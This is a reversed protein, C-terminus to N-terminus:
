KRSDFWRWALIVPGCAAAVLASFWLVSALDDNHPTASLLFKAFLLGATALMLLQGGHLNKIHARMRESSLWKWMVPPLLVMVLLAVLLITARRKASDTNWPSLNYTLLGILVLSVLRGLTIAPVRLTRRRFWFSKTRSLTTVWAPEFPSITTKETYTPDLNVFAACGRSDNHDSSAL